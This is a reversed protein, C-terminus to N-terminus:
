SGGLQLVAEHGAAGSMTNQAAQNARMNLHSEPIGLLLWTLWGWATLDQM